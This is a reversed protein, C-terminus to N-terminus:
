ASKPLDTLSTVQSAVERLADFSVESTEKETPNPEAQIFPAQQPTILLDIENIVDKAYKEMNISAHPGPTKCFRLEFEIGKSIAKNSIFDIGQREIAVKLISALVKLKLLRFISNSDDERHEIALSLELDLKSFALKYNQAIKVLALKINNKFDTTVELGTNRVVSIFGNEGADVYDESINNIFLITAIFLPSLEMFINSEEIGLDRAIKKITLLSTQINLIRRREVQGKAKSFPTESGEIKEILGLIRNYIQSDDPDITIVQNLAM